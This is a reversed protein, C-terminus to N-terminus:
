WKIYDFYHRRFIIWNKIIRNNDIFSERALQIEVLAGIKTEKKTTTPVLAQVSLKM